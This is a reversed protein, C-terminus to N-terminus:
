YDSIIIKDFEQLADNKSDFTIVSVPITKKEITWKQYRGNFYLCHVGNDKLIEDYKKNITNKISEIKGKEREKEQDSESSGTSNDSNTSTSLSGISSSNSSNSRRMSSSLAIKRSLSSIFRSEIELM